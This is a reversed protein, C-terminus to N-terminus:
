RNRQLIASAPNAKQELDQLSDPSGIAVLCDMEEIITDASPNFIMNGTARKIAIVM